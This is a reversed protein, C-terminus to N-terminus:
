SSGAPKKLKIEKKGIGHAEYWHLEMRLITGDHLRVLATAKMKKWAARGYLRNLRRLARLRHGSAITEIHEIESVIEFRVRVRPDRPRTRSHLSEVEPLGPRVDFPL